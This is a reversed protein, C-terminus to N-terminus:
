CKKIHKLFLKLPVITAIALNVGVNVLVVYLFQNGGSDSIDRDVFDTFVILLYALFLKTLLNFLEKYHNISEIYPKVSVLYCIQVVATYMVLLISLASIKLLGLVAIVIM